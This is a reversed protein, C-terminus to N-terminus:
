PKTPPMKVKLEEIKGKIRSKVSLEYPENWPPLDVVEYAEGNEKFKLTERKKGEMATVSLVIHDKKMDLEGAKTGAFYLKASRDGPVVRLTLLRGQAMYNPDYPPPKQAFAFSATSILSLFILKLSKM